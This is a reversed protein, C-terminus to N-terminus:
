PQFLRVGGMEIIADKLQSYAIQEGNLFYTSAVKSGQCKIRRTVTFSCDWELEAFKRATRHLLRLYHRHDPNFVDLRSLDSHSPIRGKVFEITM